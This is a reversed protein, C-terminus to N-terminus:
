GVHSGRHIGSTQIAGLFLCKVCMCMHVCVCVFEEAAFCGMSGLIIVWYSWTPETAM